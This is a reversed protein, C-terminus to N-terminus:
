NIKVEYGGKVSVKSFSHYIQYNGPEIERYGYDFCFTIENGKVKTVAIHTLFGFEFGARVILERKFIKEPKKGDFLKQLARRNKRLTLNIRRIEKGEKAKASNNYADKCFSNCFKKDLRGKLIPKGCQM